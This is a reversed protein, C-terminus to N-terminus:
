TQLLVSPVIAGGGPFLDLRLPAVRSLFLVVGVGTLVCYNKSFVKFAFSVRSRFRISFHKRQSSFISHEILGADVSFSFATPVHVLSLM